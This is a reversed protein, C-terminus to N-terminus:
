PRCVVSPPPMGISYFVSLELLFHILPAYYLDKITTFHTNFIRDRPYGNPMVLSASHHRVTIGLSTIKLEYRVVMKFRNKKKCM